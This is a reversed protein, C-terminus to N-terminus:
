ELAEFTIDKIRYDFPPKTSKETIIQATYNELKVESGFKRFVIYRLRWSDARDKGNDYKVEEGIYDKLQIGVIDKSFNNLYEMNKADKQWEESFCRRFVDSSAFEKEFPSSLFKIVTQINDYGRVSSKMDTNIKRYSGAMWTFTSYVEGTGPITKEVIIDPVRDGTLDAIAIGDYNGSLVNSYKKGNWRFINLPFDHTTDSVQIIIEPIKDINIDAITIKLPWYPVYPGISEKSDSPLMFKKGRDNTISVIYEKKAEDINIDIIDKRGNGDTDINITKYTKITSSMTFITDPVVLLRLASICIVTLIIIFFSFVILSSFKKYAFFLIKM